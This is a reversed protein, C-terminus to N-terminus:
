ASERRRSAPGSGARGRTPGETRAEAWAELDDARYRVYRGLRVHPIRACRTETRIWSTPVGLLAAAEGADILHGNHGNANEQLAPEAPPSTARLLDAVRRAIREVDSDSLRPASM